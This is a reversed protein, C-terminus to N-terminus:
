FQLTPQDDMLDKFDQFDFDSIARITYPQIFINDSQTRPFDFDLISLQEIGFISTLLCDVYIVGPHICIDKLTNLDGNEVFANSQDYIFGRISIEYDKLAREEKITGIGKERRITTTTLQKGGKISIIPEGPLQLERKAAQGEPANGSGILYNSLKIPLVYASGLISKRLNFGDSLIAAKDQDLVGTSSGKFAENALKLAKEKLQEQRRDLEENVRGIASDALNRAKQELKEQFKDLAETGKEIGSKALELAKKEVKSDGDLRTEVFNQTKEELRAQQKDYAESGDSIGSRSLNQAKETLKAQQNDFEEDGKEIGSKYLEQAKEELKEKQKRLEENIDINSKSLSDSKEDTQGQQQQHGEAQQGAVDSTHPNAKPEDKGYLSSHLKKLEFPM